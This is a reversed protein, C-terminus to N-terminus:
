NVYVAVYTSRGALVASTIQTVDDIIPNYLM